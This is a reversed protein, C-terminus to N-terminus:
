LRPRLASRRKSQRNTFGSEAATNQVRSEGAAAFMRAKGAGNMIERMGEQADDFDCCWEPVYDKGDHDRIIFNRALPHDFPTQTWGTPWIAHMRIGDPYEILGDARVRGGSEAIALTLSKWTKGDNMVGCPIGARATIVRTQGSAPDAYEVHVAIDGASDVPLGSRARVLRGDREVLTGDDRLIHRMEAFGGEGKLTVHRPTVMLGRLNIIADPLNQTTSIVRQPVLAGRGKNAAGNFSMVMDGTKIREIPKQTGDAMDILAGALFCRSGLPRLTPDDYRRSLGNASPTHFEYVQGSTDGPYFANGEPLRIGAFNLAEYVFTNSNQGLPRYEFNQENFSEAFVQIQNWAASLDAGYALPEVGERPFLAHNRTAEIVGATKIFGFPSVHTLDLSALFADAKEAGNTFTISSGAEIVYHAGTSDIYNIAM